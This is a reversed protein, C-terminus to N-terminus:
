YLKFFRQADELPIVHKVEKWDNTLDRVVRWYQSATQWEEQKGLNNTTLLSKENSTRTYFKIEVSKAGYSIYLGDQDVEEAYLPNTSNLYEIVNPNGDLDPDSEQQKQQDEITPSFAYSSWSDYSQYHILEESVIWDEVLKLATHDIENSGLPPMRYQGDSNLRLLIISDGAYLSGPDVIKPPEPIPVNSVAQV